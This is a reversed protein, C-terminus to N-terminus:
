WADDAFYDNINHAKGDKRSSVRGLVGLGGILGIILYITIGM